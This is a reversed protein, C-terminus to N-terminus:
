NFSIRVTITLQQSHELIIPDISKGSFELISTTEISSLLTNVPDTIDARTIVANISAEKYISSPDNDIDAQSLKSIDAEDKLFLAITCIGPMRISAYGSWGTITSQDRDM